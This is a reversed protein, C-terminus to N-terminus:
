KDVYTYTVLGKMYGDTYCRHKLDCARVCVCVYVCVCVIMLVEVNICCDANCRDNWMHM